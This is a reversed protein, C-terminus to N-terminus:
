FEGVGKAFYVLQETCQGTHAKLTLFQAGILELSANDAVSVTLAPTLLDSRSMNMQKAVAWDAVCMEAGTDALAEIITSKINWIPPIQLQSQAVQSCM